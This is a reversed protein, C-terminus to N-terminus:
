GNTQNGYGGGKTEIELGASNALEEVLVRIAKVEETLITLMTHLYSLNEAHNDFVKQINNLNESLMEEDM